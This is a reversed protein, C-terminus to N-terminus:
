WRVKNYTRTIKVKVYAMLIASRIIHCHGVYCLHGHSIAEEIVVSDRALIIPENLRKIMLLKYPSTIRRGRLHVQLLCM